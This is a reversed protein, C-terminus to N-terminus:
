QFESRHRGIKYKSVVALIIQLQAFAILNIVCDEKSKAKANMKLEEACKRDESFAEIVVKESPKRLTEEKCIELTLLIMDHPRSIM